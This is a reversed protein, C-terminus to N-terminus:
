AIVYTPMTSEKTKCVQQQLQSEQQQQLQEEQKGNQRQLEEARWIAPIISNSCRDKTKKIISSVDAVKPRNEPNNDLCSIVLPKLNTAGGTMNDLHHQRRQSGSLYETKGSDIRVWSRNPTPWQQTTTYLIVGGYSFVDLPLGYRPKDQFCEPPMFDVTGPIQTMTAQPDNSLVKAIGLDSIKAKLDHGLLINNPTLDRHVIPPNRGHLYSLGCCVDNLISLQVNLPIPINNCQEVLGRLNLQMKEMVMVPLQNQDM